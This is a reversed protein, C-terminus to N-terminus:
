PPWAQGTMEKAKAALAACGLGADVPKWHLEVPALGPLPKSVDEVVLISSSAGVTVQEQAASPLADIRGDSGQTAKWNSSTRQVVYVAQQGLVPADIYVTVGPHGDGDSDVLASHTGDGVAPMADTYGVKLGLWTTSQLLEVQSGNRQMPLPGSDLANVFAAPYTLQSSFVSNSNVACTHTYATGQNGQWDVKVLGISSVRSDQWADGFPSPNKALRRTQQWFAYYESTNAVLDGSGAGSDSAGTSGDGGGDYSRSSDAGGATEGGHADLWAPDDISGGPVDVGCASALVTALLACLYRPSEVFFNYINM